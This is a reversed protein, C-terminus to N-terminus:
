KEKTVLKTDLGGVGMLGGTQGGHLMLVLKRKLWPYIMNEQINM